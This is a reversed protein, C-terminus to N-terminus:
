RGFLREWFSKNEQVSHPPSQCTAANPLGSAVAPLSISNSCGASVVLGSQPDFQAISLNPPFPQSLSRPQSRKQFDIYYQLAGNAGTLNTSENNDKGIWITAVLDNDFGSFWSDRNDDTTGTKGALNVRPFQKKLEKATGTQTVKHLAYNVLYAAEQTIDTAQSYEFRWLTQDDHSTIANISHIPIRQGENAIAQYMQNVQIPSLDVAGLTMAPYLPIDDNVGLKHMTQAVNETGLAMGLHVTPVNLSKTLADLLLVEGRFKKDANQPEWYKGYSSKLKIPKDSLLSALHYESPQELATLYIAPKILSGIPRKADLARNFGPYGINRSGILARIEGTNIDTLVMALDLATLQKSKELSPIVSLASKEAKRQAHPDLSTYIKIGSQRATPNPLVERLERGVRDMFAPHIHRGMKSKPVVGLPQQVFYQYQESNIHENEYLLRLILDRRKLVREPFKGPNYRSPGKIIAILTSLQELSIEQLPRDFYYLSALGFGHIAQRGNQGLFVENLYAELIADKDYQYDLLIAM